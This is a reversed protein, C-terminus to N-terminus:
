HSLKLGIYIGILIGILLTIWTGDSFMSTSIAASAIDHM